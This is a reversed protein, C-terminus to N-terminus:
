ELVSKKKTATGMLSRPSSIHPETYMMKGYEEVFEKTRIPKLALHKKKFARHRALLEKREIQDLLLKRADDRSRKIMNLKKRKLMCIIYAIPSLLDLTSNVVM